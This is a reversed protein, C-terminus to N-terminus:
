GTGASVNSLPDDGGSFVRRAEASSLTFIALERQFLM